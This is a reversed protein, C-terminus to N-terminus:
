DPSKPQQTVQDAGEREQPVNEPVRLQPIPRGGPRVRKRPLGRELEAILAEMTAAFDPPTPAPPAGQRGDFSELAGRLSNRVHRMLWFQAAQRDRRRVARAVRAHYLWMRTVHRLDRDHSRYGFMATRFHVDSLIKAAYRNGAIRLLLLHFALDAKLYKRLLPGDMVPQGSDRFKRVAAHMQDCLRELQRIEAPRIRGIAKHIASRELSMRVEYLDVLEARDPGAVYTGSSAVQRLVEESELRRIAERVPTRSIGIERSLAHESIKTGAPLPSSLLKRKIYKYAIDSLSSDIGM